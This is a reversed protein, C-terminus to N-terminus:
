FCFYLELYRNRHCCCDMLQQRFRLNPTCSMSSLLITILNMITCSRLRSCCTLHLEHCYIPINLSFTSFPIHTKCHLVAKIDPPTDMVIAATVTTSTPSIMRSGTIMIRIIIFHSNVESHTNYGYVM